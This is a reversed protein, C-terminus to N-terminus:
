AISFGADAFVRRALASTLFGVFYNAGTRNKGSTVMVVSYRDAAKVAPEFDISQVADGVTTAETRYVLAADTAGSQISKLATAADPAVTTAHVDAGAATLIRHAATGCPAPEACLAVRVGPRTLDAVGYVKAPNARPVAIVLPDLALLSPKGDVLGAQAVTATAASDASVFIDVPAGAVIHAAHTASPGFDFVVRTDPYAEEFLHALRQFTKSLTDAAHVVIQGRPAGDKGAAIAPGSPDGHQHHGADASASPSAAVPQGPDSSCGGAVLATATLLVACRRFLTM